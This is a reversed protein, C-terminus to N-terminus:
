RKEYVAHLPFFEFYNNEDKVTGYFLTNPFSREGSVAKLQTTEPHQFCGLVSTHLCACNEDFWACKFHYLPLNLKQSLAMAYIILQEVANIKNAEPKYDLIHILGNRVQLIDVHGTIPTRYNNLPFVFGKKNRYYAADWNTLYTPMETAITISDNILMFDQLKQHRDKNASALNLALKAIKSAKSQKKILNIKLHNFKVQSARQENANNDRHYTFIHHPFKNSNIKEIYSKIISFQPNEKIAIDLKAKHYKFTYPQIHNLTQKQIINKPSYNKITQKRLRAFTCINKYQNIWSSVTSIPTKIKYVKEIKTSTQKLNYGLNYNSISSLVIKLPYTKNQQNEQLFFKECNKCQFQQIDRFKRKRKGRKITDKSTCNPCKVKEKTEIQM